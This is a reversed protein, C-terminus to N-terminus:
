FASAHWAGPGHRLPVRMMAGRDSWRSRGRPERTGPGAEGAATLAVVVATLAAVEVDDPNGRVVRLQAKESM